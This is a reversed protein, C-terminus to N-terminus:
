ILSPFQLPCAKHGAWFSHSPRRHPVSYQRGALRVHLCQVLSQFVTVSCGKPLDLSLLFGLINVKYLPTWNLPSFNISILTGIKGVNCVNLAKCNAAAKLLFHYELHFSYCIHKIVQGFVMPNDEIYRRSALRAHLCQVLSQFIKM